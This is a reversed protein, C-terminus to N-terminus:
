VEDAPPGTVPDVYSYRPTPASTEKRPRGRRKTTPPTPQSEEKLSVDPGEPTSSKKLQLGIWYLLLETNSFHVLQEARKEILSELLVLRDDTSM